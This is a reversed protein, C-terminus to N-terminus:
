IIRIELYKHHVNLIISNHSSIKFYICKKTFCEGINNWGYRENTYGPVKYYMIIYRFEDQSTIHKYAIFTRADLLGSNLVLSARCSLPLATTEYAPHWHSQARQYSMLGRDDGDRQYLQQDGPQKSVLM